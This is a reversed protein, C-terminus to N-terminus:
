LPHDAPQGPQRHAAAAAGAAAWEFRPLAADLHGAPASLRQIGGARHWHSENCRAHGEYKRYVDLRRLDPVAGAAAALEDDSLLGSAQLSLERLGTNYGQLSRDDVSSDGTNSVGGSSKSDSITNVGGSIVGGSDSSDSITIVGGGVSSDSTTSAGGSVAANAAASGGLLQLQLEPEGEEPCIGLHLSTLRTLRGIAAESGFGAGHYSCTHYM